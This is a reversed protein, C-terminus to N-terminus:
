PVPELIQTTALEVELTPAIAGGRDITATIAGRDGSEITPAIQGVATMTVTIAGRHEILKRGPVELLPAPGLALLVAPEPKIAGGATSVTDAALILEAPLPNKTVSASLTVGVVDAETPSTAPLPEFVRNAEVSASSPALTAPLPTLTFSLLVSPAVQDAKNLGQRYAVPLDTTTLDAGLVLEAPLPEVLGETADIEVGPLPTETAAPNEEVGLIRAVEIIEQATVAAATLLELTLNLLEAPAVMAAPNEEVGLIRAVEIIEQGLDLEAPDPIEIVIGVPAIVIGVNPAKTRSANFTGVGIDRAVEIVEQAAVLEAAEPEFARDLLEAPAVMAAAAALPEVIRAVEIIEQALDVVAADVEFIRHVLVAPAAPTLIGSDPVPQYTVETPLLDANVRAAMGAPVFFPVVSHTVGGGQLTAATATWPPAPPALVIEAVPGDLLEAPARPGVVAADPTIVLPTTM